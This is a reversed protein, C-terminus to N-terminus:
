LAKLQVMDSVQVRLLDGYQVLTFSPYRERM